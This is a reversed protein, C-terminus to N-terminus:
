WKVKAGSHPIMYEFLHESVSPSFHDSLDKNIYINKNIFVTFTARQANLPLIARHIGNFAEDVSAVCLREPNAASFDAICDLYVASLCKNIFIIVSFPKNFPFASNTM